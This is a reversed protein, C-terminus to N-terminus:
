GFIYGRNGIFPVPKFGAIFAAWPRNTIITNYTQAATSINILFGGAQVAVTSNNFDFPSSFSADQSFTDSTAGHECIAGVILEGPVAAVGSTVSPTTSSGTTTATVGSDLPDFLTQIGTAYFAAIAANTGSAKKTYALTAGTLAVSNWAYAFIGYGNASSNNNFKQAITTYTNHGGDGISGGFGTSNFDSAFVCILSKAPVTVTLAATAGAVDGHSGLDVVAVTM